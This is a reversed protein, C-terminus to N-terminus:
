RLLTVADLQKAAELVKLDEDQTDFATRAYVVHPSFQQIRESIEKLSIDFGNADICRVDHGEKELIAALYLCNIPPYIAGIDCHEFRETRVVARGKVRPPNIIM